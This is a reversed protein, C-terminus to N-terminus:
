AKLDGRLSSIEFVREDRCWMELGEAIRESARPDVFHATGVEVASAGALLYEMVDAPSEVGGLGVVPIKVARTTEYVLRMTIPKIAAGSLGGTTSGLRSGRTHADICLAPYTNAVVLADAGAAEAAKAIVGIMGITPSLKVWLPRKSAKRVAAVVAAAMSPDTSYEIGGKEVNPCSINLEYAALGEADNLVQIVEVYDAICHGFVNAIIRTDFQRLQPLKEAVFARVGINQLGIANVMGGTTECIRPAPAGAMPQASLGKVVIGGLRNLDVLPAFEVGYGFTGSAAIVPNKLSLTGVSVRLDVGAPREHIGAPQPSSM